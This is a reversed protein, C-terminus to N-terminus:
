QTDIWKMALQSQSPRNFSMSKRYGRTDRSFTKEVQRMLNWEFKVLYRHIPMTVLHNTVHKTIQHIFYIKLRTELFSLFVTFDYDLHTYLTHNKWVCRIQVNNSITLDVGILVGLIVIHSFIVKVTKLGNLHNTRHNAKNGTFLMSKPYNM